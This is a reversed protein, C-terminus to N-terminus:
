FKRELWKTLGSAIFLVSVVFEGRQVGNFHINSVTEIEISDVAGCEAGVCCHSQTRSAFRSLFIMAHLHIEYFRLSTHTHADYFFNSDIERSLEVWKM